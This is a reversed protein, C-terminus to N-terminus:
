VRLATKAGEQEGEKRGLQWCAGVSRASVTSLPKDRRRRVPYTLPEMGERRGCVCHLGVCVATVQGERRGKDKTKAKVRDKGAEGAEDAEGEESCAEWDKM